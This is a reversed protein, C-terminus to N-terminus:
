LRTIFDTIYRATENFILKDAYLIGASYIICFLIGVFLQWLMWISIRSYSKNIKASKVYKMKIAVVLLGVFNFVISVKFILSIINQDVKSM